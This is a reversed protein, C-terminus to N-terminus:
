PTRKAQREGALESRLQQKRIKGTPTRPFDDVVRVSEPWKQKPVGAQELHAQVAEITPEPCDPHLRVMACATEGLTAHPEAVVAVEAVDPHDLVHTEIETGSLNRGGRIILDGLRDTITLNGAADIMGIDGTHYWGEDDIVTATLAPDTYGCFLDPGRSLIEGPVGPGVDSGEEDVLRIEVGPRPAGDTHLRVSAPDEPSSQTISPHETSGYVRWPRIGASEARETVSSPIPAGGMGFVSMLARHNEDFRPHDLLSTLYIPAGGGPRIHAAEMIDLVRGPDWRDIMHIEESRYLPQLLGGLMGAMHALPSSNLMPRAREFSAGSQQRVEALLTRHSHMVGKPEATTGSTYAIVAPQDPEVEAPEDVPDVELLAQYPVVGRPLSGSDDSPVGATLQLSPLDGQVDLVNELQTVGAWADVTIMAKAGSQGLIFAVERPGYFHVIPVLVVGALAGGWLTVVTEAWNPLQYAVVDGPAIDHAHLGAALRRARQYLEDATGAYPHDDSWVRVTLEPIAEVQRQILRGLTDDNWLGEAHYREALAPSTIRVRSALDTM